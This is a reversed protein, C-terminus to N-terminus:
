PAKCFPINSLTDKLNSLKQFSGWTPIPKGNEGNLIPDSPSENSNHSVISLTAGADGLFQKKSIVDKLFLLGANTPFSM